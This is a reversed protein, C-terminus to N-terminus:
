LEGKELDDIADLLNNLKEHMQVYLTLYRQMRGFLDSITNSLFELAKRRDIQNNKLTMIDLKHDQLQQNLANIRQGLVMIDDRLDKIDALHTQTLSMMENEVVSIRGHIQSHRAKLMKMGKKLEGQKRHNLLSTIGQIEM